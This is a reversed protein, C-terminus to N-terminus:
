GLPLRQETALADVSHARHFKMQQKVSYFVYATLNGCFAGDEFDYHGSFRLIGARDKYTCDDLVMTLNLDDTKNIEKLGQFSFSRLMVEGRDSTIGYKVSCFYLSIQLLANITTFVNMHFVGRRDLVGDRVSFLARYGQDHVRLKKVDLSERSHIKLADVDLKTLSSLNVDQM